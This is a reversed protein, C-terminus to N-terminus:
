TVDGGALEVSVPVGACEGSVGGEGADNNGGHPRVSGEVGIGSGSEPSPRLLVVGLGEGVAWVDVQLVISMVACSLVSAAGVAVPIWVGTLWEFQTPEAPLSIFSIM